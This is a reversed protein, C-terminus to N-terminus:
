GSSESLLVNFAFPLHEVCMHIKTEVSVNMGTGKRFLNEAKQSNRPIGLLNGVVTLGTNLPRTNVRPRVPPPPPPHWGEYSKEGIEEVANIILM